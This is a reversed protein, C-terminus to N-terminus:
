YWAGPRIRIRAAATARQTAEFMSKVGKEYKKQYYAARNPDIRELFLSAALDAIVSHYPEPILPSGTDASLLPENRTYRHTVILDVQPQPFFQFQNNEITYVYNENWDDFSLQDDGDTIIIRRAEHGNIVVSRTVMIDSPLDYATASTITILQTADLWPWNREITIQNIAENIYSNASPVDQAVGTRRDVQLRLQQLNM